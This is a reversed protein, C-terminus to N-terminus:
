GIAWNADQRCVTEFCSLSLAAHGFVFGDDVLLRRRIHRPDHHVPGIRAVRLVQLHGVVQAGGEVARHLVVRDLDDHEGAGVRVKGGAVVQACRALVLGAFVKRWDAPPTSEILRVRV